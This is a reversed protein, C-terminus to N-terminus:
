VNVLEQNSVLNDLRQTTRIQFALQSPQPNNAFVQIIGAPFSVMMDGTM